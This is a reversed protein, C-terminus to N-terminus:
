LLDRPEYAVGVEAGCLDVRVELRTRKGIRHEHELQGIFPRRISGRPGPRRCFAQGAPRQARTSGALPLAASLMM